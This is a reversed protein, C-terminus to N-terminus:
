ARVPIEDHALRVRDHVRVLELAQRFIPALTAAATGLGHPGEALTREMVPKAQQLLRVAAEVLAAANDLDQRTATM